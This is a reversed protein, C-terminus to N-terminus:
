FVTFDTEVQFMADVGTSFATSVQAVQADVQSRPKIAPEVVSKPQTRLPHFRGSVAFGDLQATYEAHSISEIAWQSDLEIGSM